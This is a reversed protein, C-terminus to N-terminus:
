PDAGFLGARVLGEKEGERDEPEGPATDSGLRHKLPKYRTEGALNYVGPPTPSKDPKNVAVDATDDITSSM